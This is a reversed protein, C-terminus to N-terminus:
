VCSSRIKKPKSNVAMFEFGEAELERGVINMALNRLEQETLPRM